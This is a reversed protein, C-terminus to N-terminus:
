PRGKPNLQSLRRSTEMLEADDIAAIREDDDLDFLSDLDPVEIEFDIMKSIDTKEVQEKKPDEETRLFKADHNKQEQEITPYFNEGNIRDFEPSGPRRDITDSM